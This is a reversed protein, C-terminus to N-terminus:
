SQMYIEHANIKGLWSGIVWYIGNSSQLWPLLKVGPHYIGESDSFVWEFTGPHTEAIHNFQKKNADKMNMSPFRLSDVVKREAAVEKAEEALTHIKEVLDKSVHRDTSYQDM